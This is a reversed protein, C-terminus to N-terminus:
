ASSAIFIFVSHLKHVTRYVSFTVAKPPERILLHREAPEGLTVATFATWADYRTQYLAHICNSAM